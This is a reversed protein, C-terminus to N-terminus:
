IGSTYQGEQVTDAYHSSRPAKGLKMIVQVTQHEENRIMLWVYTIRGYM